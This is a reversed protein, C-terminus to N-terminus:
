VCLHNHLQENGVVAKLSRSYSGAGEEATSQGLEYRGTGGFREERAEQFRNEEGGPKQKAMVFPWLM